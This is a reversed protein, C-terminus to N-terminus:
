CADLPSVQHTLLFLAGLLKGGHAKWLTEACSLTLVRLRVDDSRTHMLLNLNLAKLLSDDSAAEGLGVLSEVLVSKAKASNIKACVPVQETLTTAVLRLKEDRWFAALRPSYFLLSQWPFLEGGEDYVFSKSLVSFICTWLAKDEGTTTLSKLNDILPQILFSMYPTM